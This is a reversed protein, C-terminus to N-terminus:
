QKTGRLFVAQWPKYVTYFTRQQLMDENRTVLWDFAVKAGWAKHETQIVAGNKTNPDDVYLDPPPPTLDWVRSKSINVKRGDSTGYISFVLHKEVEDVDTQILIYRSTDNRFKFDPDPQFVTADFGPEYREEYYSVRYAHGVREEIPLGAALIARFLTSSTQCVGGGDGLVTKGEKIVYAPKYGTTSSIEGVTKNFSFIEGPAVLVGNLTDASKKLNYIRNNISGSFWSEGKALLEKIGLNNVDDTNVAPPIDQVALTVEQASGGSELLTLAGVLDDVLQTQKVVYGDKAPKFEQVKGGGLFKFAANQPLRDINNALESVWLEIQNRKWGTSQPDIWVWLQDDNITWSQGGESFLIDIAKGSLKGARERASVMQQDDLKPKIEVIPINVTRKLGNRVVEMIQQKFLIEDVQQGNEGASVVIENTSRDVNIVPEKAPVNLQASIDALKAVLKNEDVYLVPQVAAENRWSNWVVSINQFMNGTRGLDFVKESTMVTDYELGIEEKSISWRQTGSSVEVGVIDKFRQELKAKLQDGTTNSLNVDWVKIGPYVRGRYIVELILGGSVISFICVLAFGVIM